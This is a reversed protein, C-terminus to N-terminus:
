VCSWAKVYTTENSQSLEFYDGTHTKYTVSYEKYAIYKEVYDACNLKECCLVNFHIEKVSYVIGAAYSPYLNFSGFLVKDSNRTTVINHSQTRLKFHIM